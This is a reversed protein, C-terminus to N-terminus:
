STRTGTAMALAARCIVHWGALSEDKPYGSKGFESLYGCFLGPKLVEVTGEPHAPDAPRVVLLNARGIRNLAVYIPLIEADHLRENRKVVFVKCGEAVDEIFKRALFKLRTRQRRVVEVAEM